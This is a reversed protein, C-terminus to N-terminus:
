PQSDQITLNLPQALTTSGKLVIDASSRGLLLGYPGADAHWNKANVDFYTFARGNLTLDVHKSEGPALDVRAFAKLEKDARPISGAPPAIYLQAVDAGARSGTNKVDFSVNFLPATPAASSPDSAAPTVTLNSYAFSTYSLGFGFPFLPQVHNHEYGRYGVFIGDDYHIDETGPTPYYYAFSPNDKLEREWSIPLRGSPNADGFLLNALAAGGEEGAYWTQLVAPVRDLWPTINASGGATLVVIVNKNLATIAAVLEDQGPPLDFTRDSGESESDPNFGLGLVVVDARAALQKAYETVWRDHPIIAVRLTWAGYDYDGAEEFVVKHSAPSLDLSVTSLTSFPVVSHDIVLKDDVFLRFKSGDLIVFDQAGKTPPIYWATWRHFEKPEHTASPISPFRDPYLRHEVEEPTEPTPPGHTIDKVLVSSIPKGSYNTSSFSDLHVGGKANPDASIRWPTHDALFGISPIGRDYTVTASDGLRNSIGTLESVSSFVPVNGSGGAAPWSPWVDPGIVAINHVRSHDLPLFNNDNKLLVAAETAARRTVERGQQSYRPIALDMQPRALWNMTSALWLQHAVATDITAVSVKGQQVAPLISARNIYRGTPMELDLGANVCAIADHVAGWDSMLVGRFNWGTRLIDVNIYRNATAHIGNIFNYSDMVAGVHAEKVGAEFIPLYIERLARESIISNSTQRAYESNNGLYHKITSSVQQSQVGNIYSVAIRGGLFPDEGFYEFNRGNMPARYINVGPGLLYNAGRSRADRGLQTGIDAALATDWTAALGIGGAYATSPPPIRTGVPGDTFHFDPISLRPVAHSIFDGNGSLMDVKEELTLQSVLRAAAAQADAPSAAPTQAAATVSLVALLAFPAFQSFRTPMTSLEPWM